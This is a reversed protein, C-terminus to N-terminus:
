YGGVRAIRCLRPEINDAVDQWVDVYYDPLQAYDAVDFILVSHRLMLTKEM